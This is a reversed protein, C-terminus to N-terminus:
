RRLGAGVRALTMVLRRAIVTDPAGTRKCSLEARRAEGMAGGLRASPWGAVARVMEAERKWFVPPRMAKVAEQASGGAEMRGRAAHLRSLFLLVQRILGVPSLGDALSREVALDAGAVDGLVAAYLANDLSVSAQDGVCARVADLDLRKDPGAFLILKEVEGRTSAYDGGLHDRLWDLADGDARVGEASLGAEIGARLGPGEEPYCAVAAGSELGELVGVLKSRRPLAGAEIVVLSDGPSRAIQEVAGALADGAERVRIVRRGGMMSIASAEEALRDHEDRGLWAVLFPDDARGVVALTLADARTRVLGEDEGYLLVVRVPGPAKLFAGVRRGDIKV